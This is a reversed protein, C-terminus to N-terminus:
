YSYGDNWRTSKLYQVAVWGVEDPNGNPIYVHRYGNKVGKGGPLLIDGKYFYIGNLQRYQKGPGTRFIVRDGTVKYASVYRHVESSRAADITSSQTAASCLTMALMAFLIKKM